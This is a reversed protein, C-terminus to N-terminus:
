RSTLEERQLQVAGHGRRVLVRAAEIAKVGLETDKVSRKVTLYM